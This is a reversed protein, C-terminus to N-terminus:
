RCFLCRRKPFLYVGLALPSTGPIALPEELLLKPGRCHQAGWEPDSTHVLCTNGSVSGPLLKQLIVSSLLESLRASCSPFDPQHIPNGWDSNLMGKEVGLDLFCQNDAWACLQVVEQHIPGMPWCSPVSVGAANQHPCFSLLM